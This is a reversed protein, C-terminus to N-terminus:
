NCNISKFFGTNRNYLHGSRYTSSYHTLLVWDGYISTIKGTTWVNLLLESTNTNINYIYPKFSWDSTLVQKEYLIYNKWISVARAHHYVGGSILINAPTINFTKGTAINQVMIWAPESYEIVSNANLNISRQWIVYNGWIQPQDDYYPAPDVPIVESEIAQVNSVLPMLMLTMVIVWIMATKKLM